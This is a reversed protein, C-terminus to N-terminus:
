NRTTRFLSFGSSWYELIGAIVIATPADDLLLRDLGELLELLALLWDDDWDELLEDSLLELLLSLEDSLSELLLWLELRFLELELTDLTDDSDDDDCDLLELTDLSDDLECDLLLLSDELEWLM